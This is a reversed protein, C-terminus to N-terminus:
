HVGLEITTVRGDLNEIKDEPEIVKKIFDGLQEITLDLKKELRVIATTNSSFTASHANISARMEGMENRVDRFELRMEDVSGALKTVVEALKDVKEELRDTM